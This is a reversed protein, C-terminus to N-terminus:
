IDSISAQELAAAGHKERYQWAREAFPRKSNCRAIVDERVAEYVELYEDWTPWVGHRGPYGLILSLQEDISLDAFRLDRRAKGIRLKRSM